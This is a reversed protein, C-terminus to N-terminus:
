SRFIRSYQTEHKMSAIDALFATGSLDELGSEQARRAVGACVPGVDRLVRQAETQGIPALRQAAAVLNAAFAHLYLTLTSSLPLDLLRAARGVAVPYVLDSLDIGWVPATVAAFARGQQAAELARERSPAYARCRADLGACSEADEADHAACLFLADSWGAGHRIVDSLWIQLDEASAVQGDQVAWELGHSYSFSGLPYGPSFWQALILAQDDTLMAIPGGMAM